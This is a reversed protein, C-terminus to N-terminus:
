KKMLYFGGVGLLGVLLGISLMSMGEEEDKHSPSVGRGGKGGQGKKKGKPGSHMNVNLRASAFTRKILGPTRPTNQKKNKYEAARAKKKVIKKTAKRTSKLDHPVAEFPRVTVPDEKNPAELAGAMEKVTDDASRTDNQPNEM